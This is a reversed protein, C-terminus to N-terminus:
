DFNKRSMPSCNPIWVARVADSKAPAPGDPRIIGKGMAELESIRQEREKLNEPSNAMNRWKRIQYVAEDAALGTLTATPSAIPTVYRIRLYGDILGDATVQARAIVDADIVGDNDFDALQLLAAAGGAAIQIQEQTAYAM